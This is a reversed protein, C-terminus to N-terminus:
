ELHDLCLHIEELDELINPKLEAMSVKYQEKHKGKAKLANFSRKRALAQDGVVEGIGSSTPFKIKQHFTLSIARMAHVMLRGLIANYALLNDIVLFITLQM